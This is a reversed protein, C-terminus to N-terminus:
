LPYLAEMRYGVGRITQIYSGVDPSIANLKHRVRKVHTDVTRCDRIHDYKWVHALLHERSLAKGAHQALYYLLEYEIFTLEIHTDNVFVKRTFPEIVLKPFIITSSASFTKTKYGPAIKATRKIIAFIRHVIERPSFPKTVYDDAGAKFGNLRDGEEDKETLILIPTRKQEHIQSCFEFGDIGPLMLDYVILNLDSSLAKQLAAQGDSEESVMIGEQSLYLRLLDRTLSDEDALMVKFPTM